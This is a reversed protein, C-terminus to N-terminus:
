TGKGDVEEAFRGLALLVKPPLLLVLVLVLVPDISIDSVFTSVPASVHKLIDGGAALSGRGLLLSM